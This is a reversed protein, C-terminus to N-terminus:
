MKGGKVQLPVVHLQHTYCHHPSVPRFAAPSSCLPHRDGLSSFDLLHTTEEINACIQSPHLLIELVYSLLSVNLLSLSCLCPRLGDMWGRLHKLTPLRVNSSTSCNTLLVSAVM